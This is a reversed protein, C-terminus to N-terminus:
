QKVEAKSSSKGRRLVCMCVCVYVWVCARACVCEGPHPSVSVFLSFTQSISHMYEEEEYTQGPHPSVSVLALTGVVGPM